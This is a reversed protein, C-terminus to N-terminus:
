CPAFVSCVRIQGWYCLPLVMSRPPIVRVMGSGVYCWLPDVRILVLSVRLQGRYLWVLAVSQGPFIRAM